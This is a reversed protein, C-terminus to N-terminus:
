QNRLLKQLGAALAGNSPEEAAYMGPATVGEYRDDSEPRVDLACPRGRRQDIGVIYTVRDRIRLAEGNCNSAHVFVDREGVDPRIFGYSAEGNWHVVTGHDRGRDHM